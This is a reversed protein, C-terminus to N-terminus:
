LISVGASFFRDVKRVKDVLRITVSHWEGDSLPVQSRAVVTETLSGFSLSCTIQGANLELAIFDYQEGLRNNHMMLGNPDVTAFDLRIDFGWRGLRPSFALLSGYDFHATAQECLPGDYGSPCTCSFASGNEDVVCRGGNRCPNPDCLKCSLSPCPVDCTKGVIGAACKCEFGDLTNVCTGGFLCPQSLCSDIRESCSNPNWSHVYGSPCTCTHSIRRQLSLFLVDDEVVPNTATQVALHNTCVQFNKCPERLCEDLNVDEFSVGSEKEIASSHLDIQGIVDGRSVFGGDDNKVAFLVDVLSSSDEVIEVSFIQINESRAPIWKALSLRLKNLHDKVIRRRTFDVIRLTVANVFTANSVITVDVRTLGSATTVGDTATTNIVYSGSSLGPSAFITGSANEFELFTSPMEGVLSQRLVATSDRDVARVRGISTGRFFGEIIILHITLPLIEPPNDNLDLVRVNVLVDGFRSEVQARVQLFFSPTTEADVEVALAIDGTREDIAFTPPVNGSTISYRIASDPVSSDRSTAKVRVISTGVDSGENVSADYVSKEFEPPNDGVDIVHITANVVGTQPPIGSDVAQVKFHYVSVTERDLSAAIRIKGSLESISFDTVNQVFSYKLQDGSGSEDADSASVTLALTGIRDTEKVRGITHLPSRDFKPKNDNENLVTVSLETSTQRPSLGDDTALVRVLTYTTTEYDIVSMTRIVGSKPDIRFLNITQQLSYTVNGNRGIDADDASVTYVLTGADVNEDLSTTYPTDLFVPSSDNEDTITVRVQTTNTLEGDTAEVVFVYVDVKERDLAAAVSVIGSGSDIEFPNGIPGPGIQYGLYGNLPLDADNASVKVVPTGRGALESIKEAYLTKTFQPVEDNVDIVNVTVTTQGTSPPNGGDEAIVNFQYSTKDEYDLHAIIDIDGSTRGIDFKKEVDSSADIRYTVDGLVGKDDDVASVTAFGNKPTDNERVTERYRPKKFRPANDNVNNIQIEVTAFASLPVTGGDRAKVTLSYFSTTEYDLPKAVFIKGTTQGIGFTGDDNGSDINYFIRANDGLDDSKAEVTVITRPVGVDEDVDEHYTSKDFRPPSDNVDSLTITVPVSASLAGSAGARDTAVARFSYVAITERDLSKTTLIRGTTSTVVFADDTNGVLSYIVDANSGTDLDTAHVEGAQHGVDVDERITESYSADDFVPSNDNADLVRIVLSAKGELQPSGNDRATLEFEHRNMKERDLPVKTRIEGNSADIVFKGATNADHLFRMSYVVAGASGTDADDASVKGVFTGANLNETVQFDYSQKTFKPANRNVARKLRSIARADYHSVASHHTYDVDVRVCAQRRGTRGTAAVRLEFERRKATTQNSCRTEVYLLSETGFLRIQGLGAPLVRFCTLASQKEVAFLRIRTANRDAAAIRLGKLADATRIAGILHWDSSPRSIAANLRLVSACQEASSSLISAFLVGCIIGITRHMIWSRQAVDGQDGAACFGLLALGLSDRGVRSRESKVPYRCGNPSHQANFILSEVASCLHIPNRSRLTTEDRAGRLIRM